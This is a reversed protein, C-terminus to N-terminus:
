VPGIGVSRMIDAGADALHGYTGANPSGGFATSSDVMFEDEESIRVVTGNWQSPHLPIIRYAEAVDRVAAQSGPPLSCILFCVANFTGWTCPYDDSNVHSNISSHSPSPTYPYSFNQILRFAGPKHPKPIISLPSTQFPGILSELVSRSFPGIYRASAVEHELTSRFSDRHIYLSPANPPTNTTHILPIGIRFGHRISSVLTPYRPSLNARRLLRDWADPLLPTRTELRRRSLALIPETTPSAVDQASTSTVPRPAAAQANSISASGRTTHTSFPATADESAPPLNATGSPPRQAHPLTTRSAASAFQVSPPPAAKRNRFPVKRNRLLDSANSGSAKHQRLPVSSHTKVRAASAVSRRHPTSTKM